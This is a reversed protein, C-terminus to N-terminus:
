SVQYGVHPLRLATMMFGGLCHYWRQLRELKQTLSRLIVQIDSGITMFCPLYIMDGSAMEVTYEM